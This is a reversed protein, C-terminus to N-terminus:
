DSLLSAISQNADDCFPHDQDGAYGLRSGSDNEPEKQVSNIDGHTQQARRTGEKISSNENCHSNCKGYIKFSSNKLAADTSSFRLGFSGFGEIGHTLKRARAREEKLFPESELLKLARESSNTVSLGWNFSCM